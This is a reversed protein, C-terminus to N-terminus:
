QLNGQPPFNLVYEMYVWVIIVIIIVFDQINDAVVPSQGKQPFNLVYEM